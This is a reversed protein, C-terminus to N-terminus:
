HLGHKLLVKVSRSAEHGHKKLAGKHLSLCGHALLFSIVDLRGEESVIVQHREALGDVRRISVSRSGSRWFITM